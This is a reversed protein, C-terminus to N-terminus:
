RLVTFSVNSQLTGGPTAVRVPGSTAGRPVTATIDSSSVVQFAAATGNFSVSTAGTLNTGLIQVAAGAVASGPVTMVFAALGMSLSFVTGKSTVNGGHGIVGYFTGNSHQFLGATSPLKGDTCTGGCFTHLVTLSGSPTMEFITGTNPGNAQQTIGYFNGDTAQSLSFPVSGDACGPQSCFSYIKVLPGTPPIKFFIGADMAGGQRTTGYLNGDAGMALASPVAGDACGSQACFNHLTTLSGGATIRFVTGRGYAGGSQTAGYLTGGAGLVLAAVPDKGDACGSLACFSYIAKLEGTPPLQFVTGYSGHVGGASATGYINGLYDQVLFGWPYEGEPCGTDLCFTHATTVQGGPTMKFLVGSNATGGWWTTGYFNGDIGLVFSGYPNVGDACGMQSCFNYLTTLQGKPTLKFITGAQYLGGAFAGGYLNGDPGQILSPSPHMGDICGVQSCSDYLVTFTQAPLAIATAACLALVAWGRKGGEWIDRRM